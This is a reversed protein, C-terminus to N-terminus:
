LIYYFDNIWVGNVASFSLTQFCRTLDAAHDYFDTYSIDTVANETLFLYDKESFDTLYERCVLAILEAYYALRDKDPATEQCLLATLAGGYLHLTEEGAILRGSGSPSPFGYPTDATVGGVRNILASLASLEMKVTRDIECSFFRNASLRSHESDFFETSNRVSATPLCVVACSGVRPNFTLLFLLPLDSFELLIEFRSDADPVARYVEDAPIERAPKKLFVLGVTLCLVSCLCVTAFFPIFYKKIQQKM